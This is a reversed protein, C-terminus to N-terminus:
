RSFQSDFSTLVLHLQLLLLHVGLGLIHDNVLYPTIVLLFDAVVLHRFWIRRKKISTHSGRLSIFLPSLSFANLWKKKNHEAVRHPVGLTIKCFRNGTDLTVM